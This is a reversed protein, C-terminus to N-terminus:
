HHLTKQIRRATQMEKLLFELPQIPLERAPMPGSTFTRRAEIALVHNDPSVAYYYHDHSTPDFGRNTMRLNVVLAGEPLTLDPHRSFVDPYLSPQHPLITICRKTRSNGWLEREQRMEDVFLYTEKTEATM